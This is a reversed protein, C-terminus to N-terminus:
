RLFETTTKSGKRRNCTRCTNQANDITNNGKRSKPISHDIESRNPGPERTTKKGCFVCTDRSEERAQKKVKESFAKGAGKGGASGAKTAGKKAAQKAALIVMAPGIGEGSPGFALLDFGVLGAAILYDLWDDDFIMGEDCMGLPDIYNVPDNNVYNYLNLQGGDFDIPDKTTWRGISPEYDRAGFRLLGTHHDYIGGAFGFPQFGPNTDQLVNGWADYNMRQMVEGTQVNVVLRPSGIHDSVIRYSNGGKVIYDPVNRRMGYVFRSTVNNDGDLEVVPNLQDKYLFGQVLEGNILKGIRRNKADVIYDITIDNPLRVQMLNGLVDYNFQTVVGNEVKDLLEGNATYNYATNGYTLLRDQQDYSAILSGNLHTRNGNSDYQYLSLEIGDQTISALRDGLDYAYATVSSIGEVTEHKEIIRGLKDHVYNIDYLSGGLDGSLRLIGSINQTNILPEDGSASHRYINNWGAYYIDDGPGFDMSYSPVNIYDVPASPDAVPACEAGEISWCVIGTDSLAFGDYDWSERLRDLSGDANIRYYYDDQGGSVVLGWDSHELRADLDPYGTTLTALLVVQDSEIRYIDRGSTLYVLGDLGIEIDSVRTLGATAFDVIQNENIGDFYSLLMGKLLYVGGSEAVTVDSAGDLWIPHEPSSNNAPLRYLRLGDTEDIFYIDGAPSIEVIESVQYVSQAQVRYVSREMQSVTLGSEDVVEITLVNNGLELPIEGSMTGDNAVLLSIGNVTISTSGVIQGTVQLTDSSINEGEITADLNSQQQVYHESMIEGFGNYVHTSEVIDINTGVIQGADDRNITLDGAQIKLGDDDYGFAINNGNINQGIQLFKGNYQYEVNGIVQGNWNEITLLPGDFQYSLVGGDPATLSAIKGTQEDYSYTFLGRPISINSLRGNASYSMNMEAGDSRIIRSLQKDLNYEYNVQGLGPGIGPPTYGAEYNIPTYDFTHAPKGPPNIATLNGNEDYRYSVVRGDPMTQESLRGILDYEFSFLRNLPDRLEGVYGNQNYAITTRREEAGEGTRVASLRGRSDYDYYVPALHATSESTLDGQGNITIYSFRGEPTTARYTLSAADFHIQSVRINYDNEIYAGKDKYTITKTQSVLSLPDSEDALEVQEETTAFQVHGYPTRFHEIGAFKSLWGLRADTQYHRSTQLGSPYTSSERVFSSSAIDGRPVVSQKRKSEITGDPNTKERYEFEDDRYIRHSTIYGLPSTLDVRYGDATDSRSLSYTGGAANQDSILRGNDDYNFASRGGKPDVLSVLLGTDTYDFFYSELNPNTIRSLYGNEDTAFRTRHGDPSAIETLNNNGDRVIETTNGYGDVIRNVYGSNNHEYQYLVSGTMTHLTSLHRGYEDFKYLETGSLSPVNFSKGTYGDLTLGISRLTRRERESVIMKGTPSFAIDVPYAFGAETAPGMDNAMPSIGTGAFPAIEGNSNVLRIRHNNTDVIFVSGDDLVGVSTPHNLQADTALVYDGTFGAQGNGAVTRVIGESNIARIRQNFSDAVYLTNNLTVALGRPRYFSANIARIGDGQYRGVGDGAYTYIRGDVSVRRIRNNREDVIFLTGENSIAISMPRNLRAETALGGDGMFGAIGMGVVTTITGTDDIKRVCHNAEEVIYIENSPGLKVDVPRNLTANVALGNDGTYGSDGTGAIVRIVGESDIEVVQHNDPLAVIIRDHDDVTIKGLTGPLEAIKRVTNGTNYAKIMEGSGLLLAKGLPDYRHYSNLSWGGLASFDVKNPIQYNFQWRRKLAIEGYLRRQEFAVGGTPERSAYDRAFIRDLLQVMANRNSGYYVPQYINSFKVKASIYGFMPRGYVDVGDLQVTYNSNEAQPTLSETYRKGGVFVEIDIRKLSPSSNLSTVPITMFNDVQRGPVRSRYNITFPTGTIPLSEGLLQSQCVIISNDVCDTDDPDNDKPEPVPDPLDADEPPGYPWNCDWPTFHTIPSRWLTKGEEYLGALTVLEQDTIGLTVMEDATVPEGEGNVDIIARGNEIRLIQLILGNDSPVWASKDFDYFGVPVPQGVPFELFNEVYLPLPQNFEVRKASVAIAEDASLEVAYTYGSAPPLPAPMAEPGNEGITYETARVNLTTLPQTSGDPMVMTATTGSPFLVTAQRTGDADTVPNGQAVQMPANPNSLEITSVREDLRIMVVDDAWVYDQWPADVKRQVPLYGAKEYNITLLGGGNVAMDLMGDRRTLTQGFEAHNKITVKVGPLPRNNRNLVLGRVVAVRQKSITTPDVGTQIPPTGNYLFESAAFLTIPASPSFPPALQAPDPPITGVGPVVDTVATGAEDSDNGAQDTVLISLEDSHEATILLIFSGDANATTAVTESTRRNTITVKAEPEISTPDGTVTVKGDVVDSVQILALDVPAPSTTDLVVLVSLDTTNGALDTAQLDIPNNGEILTLIETFTHDITLMLPEGNLTVTAAENVSGSVILEPQNTLLGDVPSQLTIEPLQTDITFTTEVPESRNGANDAVTVSLSVPGDELAVTPTCVWEPLTGSCEVPLTEGEALIELSEVDVGSGDDILKLAIQPQQSNIYSADSPSLITLEPAVADTYIALDRIKARQIGWQGEMVFTHLIQGDHDIHKIAYKNAVWVTHDTQDAVINILRRLGLGQFPGMEFHILGSADMRYLRHQGALWVGGHGDPAAQRLHRLSQDFTQEGNSTYRQLKRGTVVWIENLNDDYAVDLIHQRRGLAIVETTSGDPTTTLVQNAVAIWLRNTATEHTISRIIRDFTISNQLTGTHDFHYLTKFVSLWIEGDNKGVVLNVPWIGLISRVHDFCDAGSGNVGGLNLLSTLAEQCSANEDSGNVSSVQTQSLLVGDFGYARLTDNGYVWIKANAQDVSVARPDGDDEIELLVSGDATAVKIVGTSEAVWLANLQDNAHVLSSFCIFWLLILALSFVAFPSRKQRGQM